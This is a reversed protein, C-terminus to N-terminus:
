QFLCLVFIIFLSSKVIELVKFRWDENVFKCSLIFKFCFINVAPVFIVVSSFLIIEELPPIVWDWNSVFCSVMVIDVLKDKFVNVASFKIVASSYTTVESVGFRM